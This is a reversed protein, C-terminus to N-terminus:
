KVFHFGKWYLFVAKALIDEEPVFNTTLWYRSDKSVIRNDGLVFYKGEPVTYPGFSNSDFASEDIYPEPLPETADNIYILGDVINVTDGPLGIVRKIYNKSRDDPFKFIIIDGREVDSFTYALRNGFLRSESPLTSEMSGSPIYANILIFNNIFFAIIFAICIIFVWSAIERIWNFKEKTKPLEVEEETSSENTDVLPEIPDTDTLDTSQLEADKDIDIMEKDM